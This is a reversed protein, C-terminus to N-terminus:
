TSTCHMEPAHCAPYCYTHSLRWPVCPQWKTKKSKKVGFIGLIGFKKDPLGSPVHDTWNNKGPGQRNRSPGQGRPGWEPSPARIEHLFVYIFPLLFGVGVFAMLM